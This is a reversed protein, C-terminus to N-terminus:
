VLSRKAALDSCAPPVQSDLAVSMLTEALWRDVFFQRFEEELQGPWGRDLRTVLSRLSYDIKWNHRSDEWEIYSVLTQESPLDEEKENIAGSL